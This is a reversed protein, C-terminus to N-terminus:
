EAPNTIALSEVLSNEDLDFIHILAHEADAIALRGKSLEGEHGHDDEIPIITPPIENINTKSDGCGVLLTSACALFLTSLTFKKM